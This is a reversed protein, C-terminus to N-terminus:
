CIVNAYMTHIRWHATVHTSPRWRGNVRTSAILAASLCQINIVCYINMVALSRCVTEPKM